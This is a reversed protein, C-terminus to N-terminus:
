FGFSAILGLFPSDVILNLAKQADSLSDYPGNVPFTLPDDGKHIWWAGGFRWVGYKSRKDGEALAEDHRM